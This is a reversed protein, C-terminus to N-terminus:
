NKPGRRGRRTSSRKYRQVHTRTATSRARSNARQKQSRPARASPNPLPAATAAKAAAEAAARIAAVHEAAATPSNFAKRHRTGKADRWDAYFKGYKKLM